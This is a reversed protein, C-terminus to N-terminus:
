FNPSSNLFVIHILTHTHTHQLMVSQDDVRKKHCADIYRAARKEGLLHQLQTKNNLQMFKPTLYKVNQTFLGELTRM